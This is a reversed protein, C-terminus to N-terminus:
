RRIQSPHPRGRHGGRHIAADGGAVNVHEGHDGHSNRKSARAPFQGRASTRRTAGSLAPQKVAVASPRPEQAALLDGRLVTAFSDLAALKEDRNLRDGDEITDAIRFLLYAITVERRAPLPLCPIALAFTRSTRVLLESLIEDGNAPYAQSETISHSRRDRHGLGTGVVHSYHHPKARVPCGCSKWEHGRALAGSRSCLRPSRYCKTSHM